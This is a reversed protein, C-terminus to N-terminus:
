KARFIFEFTVIDINRARVLKPFSIIEGILVVRQKDELGREATPLFSEYRYPLYNIVDYFSYLEM